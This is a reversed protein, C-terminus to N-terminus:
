GLETLGLALARRHMGPIVQYAKPNLVAVGDILLERRVAALRPDACAAQVARILAQRAAAPLEPRTVYPLAPAAPSWALRRLGAVAAPRVRTALALTVADVAVLDAQGEQVAAMSALHSGTRVVAGFFPRAPSTEAAMVRLVNCGSQSDESNIALRAGEADAFSALAAEERVLIASRYFPGHCGEAAYCPTALYRVQGALGHTLPYGCTQSFLLDPSRWHALLDAPRELEAALGGHRAIGQWWAATADALEPLDYMPLSATM